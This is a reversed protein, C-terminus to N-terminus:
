EIIELYKLCSSKDSLGTCSQNMHKEVLRNFASKEGSGADM